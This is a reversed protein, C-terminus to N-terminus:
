KLNNKEHENKLELVIYSFLEEMTSVFALGFQYHALNSDPMRPENLMLHRLIVNSVLLVRFLTPPHSRNIWYYPINDFNVKQTQRALYTNYMATDKRLQRLDEEGLDILQANYKVWEKVTSDSQMKTALSDEIESGMRIRQINDIFKQSTLYLFGGLYAMHQYHETKRVSAIAILMKQAFFDAQFENSLSKLLKRKATFTDFASVMLENRSSFENISHNKAVHSYEHAIIFDYQSEVLEVFIPAYAWPMQMSNNPVKGFTFNVAQEKIFDINAKTIIFPKIENASYIKGKKLSDLIHSPVSLLMQRTILTIIELTGESIFIVKEKCIPRVDANVETTYIVALKPNIYKQTYKTAKAVDVVQKLSTSYLQYTYRDQYRSKPSHLSDFLKITSRMEYALFTTDLGHRKNFQLRQTIRSIATDRIFLHDLSGKPLKDIETKQIAEIQRYIKSETCCSSIALIFVWVAFLMKLNMFWFINHTLAKV